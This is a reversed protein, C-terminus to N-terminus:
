FYESIMQPTVADLAAPQWAPKQDKDIIAARVGEHFDPTKAFQCAIKYEMENIADYSMSASRKLQELTVKLSLPSKKQLTELTKHAFPDSHDKLRQMIEEITNASFCAEILKHHQTLVAGSGLSTVHQTLLRAVADSSPLEAENLAEILDPWASKNICHTVLGLALADDRNIGTGTLGLYRGVFHPCRSLFYGAGIDPFFGIGTEPMAFLFDEAAVRFSGHMSIGVGGGMTIGHLLSIYPKKCHFITKNMEYETKFFACSEGANDVGNHYIARIDGGACFARDGEGRILIAKITTDNQWELIQNQLEECMDFTLANLAKPRNLTIEGINGHQGPLENFLIDSM